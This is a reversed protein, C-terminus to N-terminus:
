GLCLGVGLVVPALSALLHLRPKPRDSPMSPFDVPRLDPAPAGLQRALLLTTIQDEVSTVQKADAAQVSIQSLHQDGVLLQQMKRVFGVVRPQAREHGLRREGVALEAVRLALTVVRDRDAYKLKPSYRRDIM